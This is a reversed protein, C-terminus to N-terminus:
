SWVGNYSAELRVYELERKGSVWIMYAILLLLVSGNGFVFQWLFEVGAPLGAPASLQVGFLLDLVCVGAWLIAFGRGVLVAWTTARVKNVRGLVQCLARLIRGGDMPFAPVLNFVGLGMNVMSALLFWENPETYTELIMGSQADVLYGTVVAFFDALLYGLGALVFSALPGAVAMLAEHWPKPPMRTIAACGGLLQLTIDKVRGGFLRAVLSHALEHLLISILLVIAMYGGVALSLLPNSPSFFLYLLYGALLVVSLNARVPIGCIKFLM